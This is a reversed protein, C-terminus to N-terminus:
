SSTAAATIATVAIVPPPDVGVPVGVAVGVVERLAPALHPRQEVLGPVDLDGVVQATLPEDRPVYNMNREYVALSGPVWQDARFRFPGSGVVETVQQFPDTRALREPM